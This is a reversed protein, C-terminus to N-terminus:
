PTFCLRFFMKPPLAESPLVPLAATAQHMEGDGAAQCPDIPTLVSTPHTSWNVLDTSKQLVWKPLTATCQYCAKPMKITLTHTSLDIIIKPAIAVDPFRPDMGCYYEILNAIGDCDPDAFYGGRGMDFYEGDLYVEPAIMAYRAIWSEYELCFNEDELVLPVNLRQGGVVTTASAALVSRVQAPSAWPKEVLVRAVAAAVYAASYSTGSGHTSATSYAYSYGEALLDRRAIPLSSGPAVINVRNVAISEATYPHAVTGNFNSDGRLNSMNSALAGVCWHYNNAPNAIYGHTGPLSFSGLAPWTPPPWYQTTSVPPTLGGLTLVSYGAGAPSTRAAISSTNGASMVTCFGKNWAGDLTRELDGIRMNVAAASHAFVIVAAHNRLYPTANRHILHANVTKELALICDSAYTSPFTAGPPLESGYCLVSRLRYASYPVFKPLLGTAVGGVCGAIGHEHDWHDQYPNVSPYVSLGPTVFQVPGFEAAHAAGIGTGVINIVPKGRCCSEPLTWAVPPKLLDLAPNSVAPTYSLGTSQNPRCLPDLAFNYQPFSTVLNDIQTSSAMIAVASLQLPESFIDRVITVGAATMDNVLTAHDSNASSSSSVYYRLDPVGQGFGRLTLWVFFFLTLYEKMNWEGMLFEMAIVCLVHERWGFGM